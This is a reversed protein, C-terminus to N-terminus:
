PTSLQARRLCPHITAMKEQSSSALNAVPCLSRADSERAESTQHLLKDEVSLWLPRPFCVPPCIPSLLLFLNSLNEKIGIQDSTTTTVKPRVYFILWYEGAEVRDM